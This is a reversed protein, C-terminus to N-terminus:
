RSRLRPTEVACMPMNIASQWTKPPKAVMSAGPNIWRTAGERHDTPVHSHGFFLYDPGRAALRRIERDSDGHTVALRRGGLEIEGGRGLCDADIAAMARRLGREDFDNNGFVFYSPIGAFLDVVAPGTLDGCHVVAEIGAAVLLEIARTTRGVQDHTDSVIGIRM